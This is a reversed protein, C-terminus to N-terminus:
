YSDASVVDMTHVPSLLGLSNSQYLSREVRHKNHLFRQQFFMNALWITTSNTEPFSIKSNNLSVSNAYFVLSLVNNLNVIIFLKWTKLLYFTIWDRLVPRSKHDRNEFKIFSIAFLMGSIVLSLDTGGLVFTARTDRVVDVTIVANFHGLIIGLNWFFRLGDLYSLNTIKRRSVSEKLSNHNRTMSLCKIWRLPWRNLQDLITALISLSCWCLLFNVLRQRQNHNVNDEQTNPM